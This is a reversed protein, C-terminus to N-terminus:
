LLYVPLILRGAYIAYMKIIKFNGPHHRCTNHHDQLPICPQLCSPMRDKCFSIRFPLSKCTVSSQRFNVHYHQDLYRLHM